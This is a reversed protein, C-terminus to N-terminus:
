DSDWYHMHAVGAVASGNDTTMAFAATLSTPQVAAEDASQAHFHMGLVALGSGITPDSLPIPRGHAPGGPAACPQSAAPRAERRM